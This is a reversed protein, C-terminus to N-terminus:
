PSPELRFGCERDPSFSSAASRSKTAEAKLRFAAASTLNKASWSRYFDVLVATEDDKSRSHIVDGAHESRNRTAEDCEEDEDGTARLRGRDSHRHSQRRHRAARRPTSCGCRCRRRRARLRRHHASSQWRGFRRRAPGRTCCPVSCPTAASSGPRPQRRPTSSRRRRRLCGPEFLIKGLLAAVGDEHAVHIVMEAFWRRHVGAHECRQLRASDEAHQVETRWGSGFVGIGGGAADVALM